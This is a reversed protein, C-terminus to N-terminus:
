WHLLHKGICGGCIKSVIDKTVEINVNDLDELSELEEWSELCNEEMNDEEKQSPEGLKVEEEMGLIIIHILQGSCM